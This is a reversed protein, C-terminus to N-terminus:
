YTLADSPWGSVPRGRDLLRIRGLDEPTLDFDFVQMNAMMRERSVTKPIVSIGQAVLFRLAVQAVSRGHAVAIDLLTPDSFIGGEALPSWAVVHVGMDRMIPLMKKQQFYVNVELQNVPPVVGTSRVLSRFSRPYFNSVGVSRVLGEERLSLLAQWIEHDRGMPWHILMQDIYDLGMVRLTKKVSEGTLEAMRSPASSSNILVKSTLFVEDRPVPSSRVAAGVEAENGYYQATDILRYGVALADEVCRKTSSPPIAYVGYGLLPMRVGDSLLVYRDM